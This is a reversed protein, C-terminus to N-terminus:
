ATVAKRHSMDKNESLPCWDYTGGPVVDVWHRGERAIITGCFQCTTEIM